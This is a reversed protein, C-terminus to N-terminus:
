RVHEMTRLFKYREVKELGLRDMMQGTLDRLTMPEKAQRMISLLTRTIAGPPTYNVAPPVRRYAPDFQEIAYDMHEIEGLLRQLTSETRRVEAVLQDRKETLSIVIPSALPIAGYYPSKVLM